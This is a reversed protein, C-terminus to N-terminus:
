PTEPTPRGALFASAADLFEQAWQVLTRADDQALSAMVSYDAANRLEFARRLHQHHCPDLLRTRAFHLGYASIVASHSSYEEGRAALLAEAVYFFAYYARSVGARVFGQETLGAATVVEERAMDMLRQVRDIV